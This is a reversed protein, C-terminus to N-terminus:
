LRYQVGVLGSVYSSTGTFGGLSSFRTVVPGGELMVSLNIQDTLGFEAGASFIFPAVFSGSTGSGFLFAFPMHFGGVVNITKTAEWTIAVGGLLPIQIAGLFNDTFNMHLGLPGVYALHVKNKSFFRWKVEAGVHMGFSATGFPSTAAAYQGLGQYFLSLRPIIELNEIIPIHYGLRIDPYGVQAEIASDRIKLTEGGLLSYYASASDPAVSLGGLLTLATILSTTTMKM